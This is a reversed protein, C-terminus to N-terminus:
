IKRHSASGTKKTKNAGEETEKSEDDENDEYIFTACLERGSGRHKYWLHVYMAVKDGQYFNWFEDHSESLQCSGEAAAFRCSCEKWMDRVKAGSHTTIQSPDIGEFLAEDSVLSDFDENLTNFAEAVEEWFRRGGHRSRREASSKGERRGRKAARQHELLLEMAKKSGDYGHFIAVRDAKSTNKAVSLRRVTCELKLQDVTWSSYDDSTPSPVPRKSGLKLQASWKISVRAEGGSVAEM